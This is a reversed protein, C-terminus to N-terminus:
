VKFLALYSPNNRFVRFTPFTPFALAHHAACYEAGSMRARPVLCGTVNCMQTEGSPDLLEMLSTLSKLTQAKEARYLPDNIFSTLFQSHFPVNTWVRWVKEM